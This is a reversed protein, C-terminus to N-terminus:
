MSLDISHRRDFALPYETVIEIPVVATDDEIGSTLGVAKQLAWGARLTLLPWRGRASFELGTVSGFDSTSYQGRTGVDGAVLTGSVLNELKKRFATVSVVFNEKILQSAGVEYSMGKEF